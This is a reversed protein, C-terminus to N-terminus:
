VHGLAEVVNLRAGRRAPLLSAVLCLLILAVLSGVWFSPVYLIRLPIPNSLIPPTWLPQRYDVWLCGLVTLVIGLASGFLGLLLSEVGFLWLVGRYKLGLSRLTGIERIREFVAMSMTNIVSMVVIVFVIVFLFFFVVDFMSKTKRYEPSLEQWSKVELPLGRRTFADQLTKQLPLTEKGDKLLLVVRDAGETDYLRQLLKFPVVLIKDELVSAAVNVVQVVRVDMANIQGDVTNTMIVATSGLSLDIMRALGRAVGIADVDDDRLPEGEYDQTKTLLRHGWFVDLASPEVGRAIFITSVRGNSILGNLTLQPTILEIGALDGVTRQVEELDTATLLYREPELQGKELFGKKFITLHGKMNGYIAGEQLGAYMYATFGGFLNVAAYGLSIATITILSRRGNKILNRFAIKIWATNM